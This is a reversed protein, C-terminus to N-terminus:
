SRSYKSRYNRVSGVGSQMSNQRSNTFTLSFTRIPEYPPNLVQFISQLCLKDDNSILSPTYQVTIPLKTLHIFNTIRNTELHHFCLQTFVSSDPPTSYTAEDHQPIIPITGEFIVDKLKVCYLFACYGIRIISKPFSVSTLLGCMAFAMPEITTVAPFNVSTLAACLAFASQGITTAVPFTISTLATCGSFAQLQIITVGPFNVSMLSTCNTFAYIGITTTIPFNVSTLAVCLAFAREGITTVDPFTVSKITNNGQLARYDIETINYRLPAESGITLEVTSLNINEVSGRYAILRVNRTGSILTYTFGDVSGM